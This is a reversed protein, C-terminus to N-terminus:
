KKSAKKVAKDIREALDKIHGMMYSDNEDAYKRAEELREKSSSLDKLNFYIEALTHLNYPSQPEKELSRKSLKLALDPKKSRYYWAVNNLLRPNDAFLDVTAGHDLLITLIEGLGRESAIGLNSITSGGKFNVDAGAEVLLKVIKVNNQLIARRLPPYKSEYTYYNVDSGSEILLQLMSINNQQIAFHIPHPSGANVNAGYKILERAVLHRNHFIALLLPTCYNSVGLYWGKSNVNAGNKLLLQLMELSNNEVAVFLPYKRPVSDSFYGITVGEDPQVGLALMRRAMKINNKSVAWQFVGTCEGRLTKTNELLLFIIELQREYVQKSPESGEPRNEYIAEVADDISSGCYRGFTPDAGYDLLVKVMELDGNKVATHLPGRSVTSATPNVPAGAELLIRVMELNEREVADTILYTANQLDYFDNRRLHKLVIRVTEATGEQVARILHFQGIDAGKEILFNLAEIKGGQFTWYVADNLYQSWNLEKSADLLFQMIEVSGSKAANNLATADVQACDRLLRRVESVDGKEAALDVPKKVNENDQRRLLVSYDWSRLLDIVKNFGVARGFPRSDATIMGVIDGNGNLLAGGSHGNSIFSSEFNIDDGDLMSVADPKVPMGWSVGNPNGIPYVYDGRELSDSDGLHDLPLECFEFGYKSINDVVVVAIDLQLDVRLMAQARLTKGPREKLRVSIKEAIKGDRNIVHSATVIFLRDADRGFIIGAGSIGRSESPNGDAFEAEIMVILESVRELRKASNDQNSEYTEQAFSCINFFLIITLLLVLKKDLSCVYM